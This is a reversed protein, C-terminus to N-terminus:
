VCGPSLEAATQQPAGELLEATTQRPAGELLECGSWTSSCRGRAGFKVGVRSNVSGRVLVRRGRVRRVRVRTM